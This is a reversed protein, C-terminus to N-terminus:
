RACASASKRKTSSMGTGSSASACRISRSNGTGTRGGSNPPSWRTGSGTRLRVPEGEPPILEAEAEAEGTYSLSLCLWVRGDEHRQRIHVDRLRAGNIGLLSIPRWIGADPLRPGWDWGYMCHAKRIHPFGVMADTSGGIPDEEYRRAAERTPSAFRVTLRNEGEVLRRTVDFEFTRHMNEAQGIEEGNLFLTCVTDLGECLLVKEGCELLERPPVFTREFTFPGDDMLALADLENEGVFPDAMKGEELLFSYVSGPITGKSHTEGFSLTWEGGLDFHVM